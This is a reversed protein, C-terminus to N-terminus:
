PPLPIIQARDRRDRPASDIPMVGAIFCADVLGVLQRVDANTNNARLKAYCFASFSGFSAPGSWHGKRLCPDRHVISTVMAHHFNHV